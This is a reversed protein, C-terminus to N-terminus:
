TESSRIAIRGLFLIAICKTTINLHELKSSRRHDKFTKSYESIASKSVM